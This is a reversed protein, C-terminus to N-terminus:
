LLLLVKQLTGCTVFCWIEYNKPTKKEYYCKKLLVERTKNKENNALRKRCLEVNQFLESNFPQM